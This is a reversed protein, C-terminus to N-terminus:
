EGHAREREREREIIIISFCGYRRPIPTKNKPDIFNLKMKKKNIFFLGEQKHHSLSIM